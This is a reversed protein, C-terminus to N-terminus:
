SSAILSLAVHKESWGCMLGKVSGLFRIMGLLCFGIASMM